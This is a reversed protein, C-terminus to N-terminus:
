EVSGAVMVRALRHRVWDGNTICPLSAAVQLDIPYYLCRYSVGDIDFQREARYFAERGDERIGEIEDLVPLLAPDVRYIDGTVGLMADTEPLPTADAEKGDAEGAENGDGDLAPICGPYPGFDFLRGPMRAAGILVPEAIGHRLAALAIDNSEGRRLTGYVFVHIDSSVNELSDSM